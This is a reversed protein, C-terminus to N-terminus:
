ATTIETVNYFNDPTHFFYTQGNLNLELPNSSEFYNVTYNSGPAPSNSISSFIQANGTSSFLSVVSSMDGLIDGSLGIVHSIKSTVALIVAPETVDMDAGNAASEASVIALELGLTAPFIKLGESVQKYYANSINLWGTSRDYFTTTTYTKERGSDNLIFSGTKTKLYHQIVWVASIPLNSYSLQLGNTTNINTIEAVTYSGDFTTSIISNSLVNISHHGTNPCKIIELKEKHLYTYTSYRGFYYSVGPIGIAVTTHNLAKSKTTGNLSNWMATPYASTGTMSGVEISSFVKSVSPIPTITTTIQGSSSEYVQNSSLNMAFDSTSITNTTVVLSKGNDANRGIHAISLPLLGNFDTVNELVSSTVNYYKYEYKVIPNGCKVPTILDSIKEKNTNM